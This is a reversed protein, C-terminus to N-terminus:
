TPRVRNGSSACLRGPRYIVAVADPPFTSAVPVMMPEEGLLPRPSKGTIDGASSVRTSAIRESM